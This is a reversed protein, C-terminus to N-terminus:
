QHAREFARLKSSRARRNARVERESPAIPKKTLITGRGADSWAKFTRKVTRDELSHFSIVAIRGGPAILEISKTLAEELAGLEDNVAMRIAQFTRTAPHVSGRGPAAKRIIEALAGSTTIPGEQRADVIARAIRRARREGGYGFIIDALSSESWENVVHMATLAEAHPSEAFTMLLPEDEQFTFGRRSREPALQDSSLGLDLLIREVSARGVSRLHLDLDRFNGAVLTVRPDDGLRARVRALATADEDIGIYHGNPGLVTLIAAAHGGGGATGDLITDGPALALVDIVEQLLVPVHVSEENEM